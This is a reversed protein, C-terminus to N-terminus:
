PITSRTRCVDGPAGPTAYRILPERRNIYQTNELFAVTARHITPLRSLKRDAPRPYV